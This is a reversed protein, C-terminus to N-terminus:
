TKPDVLITANASELCEASPIADFERQEIHLTEEKCVPCYMHKKHRLERLAGQNRPVYMKTGCVCCYLTSILVRARGCGRRRSM